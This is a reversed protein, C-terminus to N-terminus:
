KEAEGSERLVERILALQEEDPQAGNNQLSFFDRFLEEVSKDEVDQADSTEAAEGTKSNRM